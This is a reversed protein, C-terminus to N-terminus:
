KLNERHYELYEQRKENIFKKNICFDNIHEKVDESLKKSLIIKGENDFSIYNLDFLSDINRSLLLGNNPDFEEDEDSEIYPKIHSAILTPYALEEVMCKPKKYFIESEEKLQDKYIKQMYSDRQTNDPKTEIQDETTEKFKIVGKEIQIDYLKSIINEFHSLQNYKRDEFGIKKARSKAENLENKELYGKPYNKIDTIMLGNIDDTSLTGNKELTKVLFNISKPESQDESQNTVSANFKSNKYVIRSFLLQRRLDTQANLFQKAEYTYTKLECNIFGLKVFQNIIKRASVINIQYKEQLVSALIKYNTKGESDEDIFSFGEPHEDIFNLIIELSNRFKKGHIDTYALTIKWYNEYVQTM